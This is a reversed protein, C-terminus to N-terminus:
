NMEVSETAISYKLDILIHNIRKAFRKGSLKVYVYHVSKDSISQQRHNDSHSEYLTFIFRACNCTRFNILKNEDTPFRGYSNPHVIKSSLLCKKANRKGKTNSDTTKRGFCM